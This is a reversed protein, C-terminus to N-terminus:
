VLDPPPSQQYAIFSSFLFEKEYLTISSCPLQFSFAVKQVTFEQLFHELLFKIPSNTQEKETQRNFISIFDAILNTELLDEEVFLKVQDKVFQIKSVDYLKGNLRFEEGETLWNIHEFEQKSLVLVPHKAEKKDIWEAMGKKIASQNVFFAGYFGFLNLLLLFLLSISTVIRMFCQSHLIFAKYFM